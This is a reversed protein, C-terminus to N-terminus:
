ASGHMGARRPAGAHSSSSGAAPAAHPGEDEDSASTSYLPSVCFAGESSESDRVAERCSPPRFRGVRLLVGTCVRGTAPSRLPPATPTGDIGRQLLAFLGAPPRGVGCLLSQPRKNESM